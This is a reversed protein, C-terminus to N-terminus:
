RLNTLRFDSKIGKFFLHCDVRSLIDVIRYYFSHNKLKNKLVM